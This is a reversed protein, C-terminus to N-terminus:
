LTTPRVARPSPGALRRVPDLVAQYHDHAARAESLDSINGGLQTLVTGIRRRAFDQAALVASAADEGPMFRRVAIQAFRRRRFQEGIWQQRSAWLFFQRMLAM